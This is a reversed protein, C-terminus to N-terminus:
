LDNAKAVVNEVTLGFHEYMKADGAGSIGFDDICVFNEAYKYWSFSSGAEVALRRTKPVSLPLVSEKYEATQKEYVDVCPMSVARVSKGSKRLEEAADVILQVESGTAILIIDPNDSSDDSLIYGGKKAGEFSSTELISTSQRTLAITVPTLRSEIGVSYAAATELPDAPRYMFQNPMARLSALHEIPQHTPGDEGLFVSDHTVVNIIGNRSLAALRMAPRM